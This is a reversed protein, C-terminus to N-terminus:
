CRWPPCGVARPARAAAAPGGRPAAVGGAGPARAAERQRRVRRDGARHGHGRKRQAPHVAGPPRDPRRDPDPPHDRRRADRGGAARRPERAPGGAPRLRLERRARGVERQHIIARRRRHLYEIPDELTVIHCARTRNLHELLAALTTSKGSGTAGTVLVLGHRLECLEALTAPLQLEALSPIEVRLPRLAVALGGSTAFCTAGCGCRRAPRAPQAHSFAFDASGAREVQRWRERWCPGSSARAPGRDHHRRGREGSSATSACSRARARRCCCTPPAARSRRTWCAPWGRTSASRSASEPSRRPVATAGSTPSRAGRASRAPPRLRGLRGTGAARAPRRGPRPAAGKTLTLTLKDGTRRARVAFSGHGASRYLTEVLGTGALATREEHSLLEALLDEMM